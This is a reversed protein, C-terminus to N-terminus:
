ENRLLLCSALPGGGSAVVATRPGKAVQRAGGAGRLQICAEYLLGYGHTRGSSLQGGNTNLPLEGNLAIRQGGEVFAGSEGKGCFGLAELWSLTLFSFGDYLEAVDIDNPRLDTRSWMMKAADDAAMSTLDGRQDWSDRGHNACGVAEILIPKASPRSFAERSSIIMVTAGDIPVDCDYLCLPTSIMRANIYEDLSLPANYIASEAFLANKRGNLAIQALQERTTGYDHFHRQAFLAIWNAASYARFPVQWQYRDELRADPTGTGTTSARRTGSQSSSETLTRFCLVHQALGAAIAACANIISSLQAPGEAGGSYWNLNLGLADKLEHVAVPSFGPYDKMYGPWCSIGDIASPTLGANEIAKLAADLTLALGSTQLRRGIQSQGIGTIAAKHEGIDM